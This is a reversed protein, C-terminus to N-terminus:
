RSDHLKVQDVLMWYKVGDKLVVKYTDEYGAATGEEVLEIMDGVDFDKAFHEYQRGAGDTEHILESLNPETDM